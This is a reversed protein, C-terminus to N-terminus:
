SLRLRKALLHRHKGDGGMARRLSVLWAVMARKDRKFGDFQRQEKGVTGDDQEILVTVVPLMRHVDIGATVKQLAHLTEM